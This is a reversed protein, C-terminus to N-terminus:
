IEFRQDAQSNTSTTRQTDNTVVIQWELRRIRYTFSSVFMELVCYSCLLIALRVSQESDQHWANRGMCAAHKAESPIRKDNEARKM